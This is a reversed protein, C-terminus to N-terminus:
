GGVKVVKGHGCGGPSPDAAGSCPHNGHLHSGNCGPESPSIRWGDRLSTATSFVMDTGEIKYLLDPKLKFKIPKQDVGFRWEDQEGGRVNKACKPAQYTLERDGIWIPYAESVRSYKGCDFAVLKAADYHEVNGGTPTAQKVLGPGSIAGGVRDNWRVFPSDGRCNNNHLTFKVTEGLDIIILEDGLVEVDHEHVEQCLRGRHNKICCITAGLGWGGEDPCCGSWVRKFCTSGFYSLLADAQTWGDLQKCVDDRNTTPPYTRHDPAIRLALKALRQESPASTPSAPLLNPLAVHCGALPTNPSNMFCPTSFPLRLRVLGPAAASSTLDALSFTGLPVLEAPSFVEAVTPGGAYTELAFSGDANVTASSGGLKVIWERPFSAFTIESADGALQLHIGEATANGELAARNDLFGRRSEAPIPMVVQLELRGHLPFTSRAARRRFLSSGTVQERLSVEATRAVGDGTSLNEIAGAAVVRGNGSLVEVIAALDSAPPLSLSEFSIQRTELPAIEIERTALPIGALNKIQLKVRVPRGAIEGLYVM